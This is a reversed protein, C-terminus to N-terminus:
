RLFREYTEFVLNQENPYKAPFYQTSNPVRWVYQNKRFEHETWENSKAERVKELYDIIAEDTGLSKQLLGVGTLKSNGKIEVAATFRYKEDKAVKLFKECSRAISKGQSDGDSFMFVMPTAGNRGPVELLAAPSVTRGGLSPSISLWIACIIDKGEPRPEPQAPLGFMSPPNLKHRHWESNLWLAGLTAGTEGGIIYTSSTNCIGNDNKSRELFAKAAAIDNVLLPQYRKDFNKFDITSKPYGKVYSKNHGVKWFLDPQVETSNGHGRFDFTLVCYGAKQMEEALSVWGKKRSDEGLAHLIMVVPASRKKSPYFSGQIEVGDVTTFRVKESTDNEQSHAGTPWALLGGLVLFVFSSIRGINMPLEELFLPVL